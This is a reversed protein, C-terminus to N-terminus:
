NLKISLEKILSNYNLLKSPIDENESSDIPGDDRMNKGTSEITQISNYNSMHGRKRKEM